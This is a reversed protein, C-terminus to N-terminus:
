LCPDDEWRRVAPEEGPALAWVCSHIRLVYTPNSAAKLHRQVWHKYVSSVAKGDSGYLVLGNQTVLGSQSAGEIELPQGAPVSGGLMSSGYLTM